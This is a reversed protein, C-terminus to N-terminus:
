CHASRYDQLFDLVLFRNPAEPLVSEAKRFRQISAAYMEDIEVETLTPLYDLYFDRNTVKTRMDGLTYLDFGQHLLRFAHRVLKQSKPHGFTERTQMRKYQAEAYGLYASKVADASLLSERIGLLRDGWLYEKEVYDELYLLELITPNCKLALRLFHALEHYAEDPDHRVISTTVPDLEWFRRSPVSYVGHYDKDSNETALGHSHSGALGKLIFTVTTLDDTM